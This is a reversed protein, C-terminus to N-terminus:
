LHKVSRRAAASRIPTIHRTYRFRELRSRLSHDFRHSLHGFGPQMYVCDPRIAQTVILKVYIQGVDSTVSVMDGNNLGQSAAVKTNMWLGPSM